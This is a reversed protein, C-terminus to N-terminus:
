YLNWAKEEEEWASKPTCLEPKPIIHWVHEIKWSTAAGYGDREMDTRQESVRVPQPWDKLTSVSGFWSSAELIVCTLFAFPTTTKLSFAASAVDKKSRMYYGQRQFKSFSELAMGM